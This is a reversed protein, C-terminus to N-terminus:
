ALSRDGRCAPPGELLPPAAPPRPPWPGPPPPPAPGAPVPARAGRDLHADPPAGGSRRPRDLRAGASARGPEERGINPRGVDSGGRRPRPGPRAAASGGPRDDRGRRDGPGRPGWVCAGGGD